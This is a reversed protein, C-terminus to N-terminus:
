NKSILKHPATMMTDLMVLGPLLIDFVFAPSKRPHGSQWTYYQCLRALKESPGGPEMRLRCPIQQLYCHISDVQGPVSTQMNTLICGLWQSLQEYLSGSTSAM